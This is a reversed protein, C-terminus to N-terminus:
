VEVLSVAKTYKQTVKLRGGQPRALKHIHSPLSTHINGGRYPLWHMYIPYGPPGMARMGAPPVWIPSGHTVRGPRRAHPCTPPSGAVRGQSQPPLCGIYKFVFVRNGNGVGSKFNVLRGAHGQYCLGTRGFRFRFRFTNIVIPNPPKGCYTRKNCAKFRDSKNPLRRAHGDLAHLGAPICVSQDTEEHGPLWSWPTRYRSCLAYYQM